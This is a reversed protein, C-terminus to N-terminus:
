RELFDLVIAVVSAVVVAASIGAGVLYGYHNNWGSGDRLTLQPTCVFEGCHPCVIIQKKM